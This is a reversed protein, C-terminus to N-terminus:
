QLEGGCNKWLALAHQELLSAADPSVRWLGVYRHSEDVEYGGQSYSEPTPIYGIYGHCYAAVCVPDAAMRRAIGEGIEYFVEGPLAVVAGHGIRAVSVRAPLPPLGAGQNMVRKLEGLWEAWAARLRERVRRDAREEDRVTRDAKDLDREIEAFSPPTDHPILLCRSAVAITPDTEPRARRCAEMVASALQRGAEKAAEPGGYAMRPALNGSCGNMYIAGHGEAALAAATHGWFDPSILSCDGGLCYAHCAHQFLIISAGESQLHMVRVMSDAPGEPNRGLVVTGSGPVVQRRNISISVPAAGWRLGVTKKSSAALSAAKLSQDELAKVYTDDAPGLGRLSVTMPGSHTHTCAIVVHDEPIGLSASLARTLRDVTASSLGLVDLGLLLWSIGHEEIWLARASLPADVGTSPSTRAIFGNLPAGITPTIDAAAYGALM